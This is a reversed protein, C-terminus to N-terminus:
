QVMEHLLRHLKAWPPPMITTNFLTDQYWKFYKSTFEICFTFPSLSLFVSRHWLTWPNQSLCYAQLQWKSLHLLSNSFYSQLSPRTLGSIGMLHGLPIDPLCNFITAGPIIRPQLTPESQWWVIWCANIKRFNQPRSTWSRPTLPNPTKQPREGQRRRAKESHIWVWTEVHVSM